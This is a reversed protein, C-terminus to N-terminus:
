CKELLQRECRKIYMNAAFAVIEESSRWVLDRVRQGVHEFNLGGTVVFIKKVRFRKKRFIKLVFIKWNVTYCVWHNSGLLSLLLGVVVTM